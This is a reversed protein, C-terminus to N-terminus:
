RRLPGVKSIVPGPHQGLIHLDVLGCCLGLAWRHQVSTHPPSPMSASLIDGQLCVQLRQQCWGCQSSPAGCGMNHDSEAMDQPSFDLKLSLMSRTAM